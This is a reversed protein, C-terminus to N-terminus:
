QITKLLKAPAGAVVSFAPFSDRVISNAAVVCNEGLEVGPCIVAGQGIWTGKGIVVPKAETVGQLKIPRTKDQYRHTHDAIYVYRAILANDGIEVKKLATITCHGSIGVNEGISLKVDPGSKDEGEDGNENFTALWSDAGIYTSAGISMHKWGILRCPLEIVVNKGCSYFSSRMLVSFIKNKIRSYFAFLSLFNM